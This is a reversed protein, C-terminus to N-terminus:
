AQLMQKAGNPLTPFSPSVVLTSISVGKDPNGIKSGHQWRAHWSQIVHQSRSCVNQGHQSISNSSTSSSLVVISTCARRNSISSASTKSKKHSTSPDHPSHRAMKGPSCKKGSYKSSIWIDTQSGCFMTLRRRLRPGSLKAGAEVSVIRNNREPCKRQQTNSAPIWRALMELHHCM